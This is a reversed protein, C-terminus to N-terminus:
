YICVWLIVFDRAKAPFTGKYELRDVGTVEDLRELTTQKKCEPEYLAIRSPDQFLAVVAEATIKAGRLRGVIANLDSGPVQVDFFSM